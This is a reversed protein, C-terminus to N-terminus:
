VGHNYRIQRAFELKDKNVRIAFMPEREYNGPLGMEMGTISAQNKDSIAYMRFPPPLTPLRLKLIGTTIKLNYMVNLHEVKLTKLITTLKFCALVFLKVQKNRPPFIEFEM